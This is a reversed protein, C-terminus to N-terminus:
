GRGVGEVYLRSGPVARYPKLDEPKFNSCTYQLQRLMSQRAQDEPMDGPVTVLVMAYWATKPDEQDKVKLAGTRTALKGVFRGGLLGASALGLGLGAPAMINRLVERRM